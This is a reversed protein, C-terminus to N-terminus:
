IGPLMERPSPTAAWAPVRLQTEGCLAAPAPGVAARPFASVERGGCGSSGGPLAPRAPLATAPRPGRPM